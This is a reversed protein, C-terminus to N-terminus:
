EEEFKYEEPLGYQDKLVSITKIIMMKADKWVSKLKQANEIDPVCHFQHGAADCKLLSSERIAGWLGHEYASDYDYYLGYLEKEGIDNAKERVNHKDFYTTDMDIFDENKYENVLLSIYKYMIHSTELNMKAEEYRKAILKYQGIGYIQYEKWIDDHEKEHKLLYKMIIYDEILVRVISRGSIENYLKFTVLELLRKYSYTAIGLLVLMKNDLPHASTFMDSYYEMISKTKELFTDADIAEQEFTITYLKCETMVSVTEWFNNLYEKHGRGDEDIGIEAARIQPRIICMEVSDHSVQPYKILADLFCKSEETFRLRDCILQFQIVLFRIDTAFYSQHEAAKKLTEGIINLRKEVSLKGDCFHIAFAPNNSFSTIITLPSLSDKGALESVKDFILNQTKEDLSLIESFYLTQLDFEKIYQFIQSCINLGEARGFKKLILGLWLYEPLRNQLWPNMTFEIGMDNWPSVFKGKIFKHQSLKAHEM